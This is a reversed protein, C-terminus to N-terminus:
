VGDEGILVVAGVRMEPNTWRNGNVLKPLSGIYEQSWRQWFLRASQHQKTRMWCLDGPAVANEPDVQPNWFFSPRGILFHAPTLPIDADITDGIFTLPRSNACAEVEQVLTELEVRTLSRVGVSKRLSSKVTKVM